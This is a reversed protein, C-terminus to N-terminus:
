QNGERSKAIKLVHNIARMDCNDIKEKLKLLDVLERDKLSLKLRTVANGIQSAIVEKAIELKTNSDM